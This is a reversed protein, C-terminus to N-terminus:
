AAAVVAAKPTRVGMGQMGTVGVGHTGPEGVTRMALWGARSLVLWSMHVQPPMIATVSGPWICCWIGYSYPPHGIRKKCFLVKRLLTYSRDWGGFGEGM